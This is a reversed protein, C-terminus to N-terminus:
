PLLSSHLLSEAYASSCECNPDFGEGPPCPETCKGNCLVDDNDHCLCECDGRSFYQGRPCDNSVCAGDCEVTGPGCCICTEPNGFCYQTENCKECGVCKCEDAAFSQCGPCDLNCPVCSCTAADYEDSGFCDGEAVTCECTCDDTLDPLAPDDCEKTCECDCIGDNFTEDAGCDAQSKNCVCSCTAADFDPTAPIEKCIADATTNQLCASHSLGCRCKCLESVFTPASAPCSEVACECSCNGSNFDPENDPCRWKYIDNGDADKGYPVKKDCEGSMEYNLHAMIKEQDCTCECIERKFEYKAGSGPRTLEVIEDPSRHPTAPPCENGDIDWQCPCCIGNHAGDLYDGVAFIEVLWEPWGNKENPPYYLYDSIPPCCAPNCCKAM